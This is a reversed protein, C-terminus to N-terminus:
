ITGDVANDLHQCFVFIIGKMAVELNCKGTRTLIYDMFLHYKILREHYTKLFVYQIFHV